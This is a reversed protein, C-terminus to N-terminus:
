VAHKMELKLQSLAFPKQLCKNAGAALTEQIETEGANASFAIAPIVPDLRRIIRLADTGTLRPMRIDLLVMEYQDQIFHLVGEVGDCALDVQHAEAELETKLILGFNKDDEILLIHM